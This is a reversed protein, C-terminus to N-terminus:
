PLLIELFTCRDQPTITVPSCSAPVMMTEARKLPLGSPDGSVHVSGSIVALLRLRPSNFEVTEGTAWRRMVFKDCEVLTQARRDDCPRPQCPHVPGLEFNTARISQEIHLDRPKGDTDVRNWDFIRFTTNSAQQIEAIVLGAGIAHLTGAQIFVCDGIGPTFSHLVDETAGTNIAHLLEDRDVGAKLGAYIRSGQEAHLVYWAETKGLDPPQLISGMEDDPHVQVSLDRSADLFKLLLPFRGRLNEPIAPDNIKALWSNGLLDAGHHKVIAHLPEGTLTGYRVISQDVGHDVIEWSEACSEEGTAKNLLSQLRHGGWIYRRFIPEFRLPYM